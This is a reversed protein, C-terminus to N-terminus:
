AVGGEMADGGEMWPLDAGRRGLDRPHFTRAEDGWQETYATWLDANAGGGVRREGNWTVRVQERM